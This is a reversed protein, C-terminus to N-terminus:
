SNRSVYQKLTNKFDLLFEEIKSEMSIKEGDKPVLIFRNCIILLKFHIQSNVTYM